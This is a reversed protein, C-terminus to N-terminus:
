NRDWLLLFSSGLWSCRSSQSISLPSCFFWIFVSCAIHNQTYLKWLLSFYLGPLLSFMYLGWHNEPTLFSLHIPLVCTSWPPSNTRHLIIIPRQYSSNMLAQYFTLILSKVMHFNEHRILSYCSIYMSQCLNWLIM